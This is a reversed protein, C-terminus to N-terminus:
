TGVAEGAHIHEAICQLHLNKLGECTETRNQSTEGHLQHMAGINGNQENKITSVDTSMPVHRPRAESM